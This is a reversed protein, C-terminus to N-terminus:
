FPLLRDVFERDYIETLRSRLYEHCWDRSLFLTLLSLYSAVDYPTIDEFGAMVIYFEVPYLKVNRAAKNVGNCYNQILNREEEDLLELYKKAARTVGITRIFKDVPVGESGILESLRGTSLYRFFNVQWLRDKAHVFGLGYIAGMFTDAEVLKIGYNVQVIKM